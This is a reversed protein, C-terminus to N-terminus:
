ARVQLSFGTCLQQDLTGAYLPAKIIDQLMVGISETSQGHISEISQNYLNSRM